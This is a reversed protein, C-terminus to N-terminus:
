IRIKLQYNHYKKIFLNRELSKLISVSIVPSFYVLLVGLYEYFNPNLKFLLTSFFTIIFAKLLRSNIYFMTGEGIELELIYVCYSVKCCM